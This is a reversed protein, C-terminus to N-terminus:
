HEMPYSLEQVNVVDKRSANPNILPDTRHDGGMHNQDRAINDRGGDVGRALRQCLIKSIKRM